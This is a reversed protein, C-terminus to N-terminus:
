RPSSTTVSSPVGLDELVAADLSNVFIRWGINSSAAQSEWCGAMLSFFSLDSERGGPSFRGLHYINQSPSQSVLYKKGDQMLSVSNNSAQFFTIPVAGGYLGVSFDGSFTPTGEQGMSILEDYTSIGNDPSPRGTALNLYGEFGFGHGLEHALVTVLDIKGPPVLDTRQVPNPDIWYNKLLYSPLLVIQVDPKGIDVSNGTRLKYPGSKEFVHFGNQDKM